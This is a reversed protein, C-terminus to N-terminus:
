QTSMGATFAKVANLADDKPLTGYVRMRQVGRKAPASVAAFRILSDVPLFEMALVGNDGVQWEIQALGDPSIAIRPDPLQRESMLFLALEKLSELTMPEEDPDDLTIKHLYGLRDAVVDLGFLRLIAIVEEQKKATTIHKRWSIRQRQRYDGITRHDNSWVAFRTTLPQAENYDRLELYQELWKIVQAYEFVYSLGQSFNIKDEATDINVEKLTDSPNQNEGTPANRMYELLSSAAAMNKLSMHSTNTQVAM